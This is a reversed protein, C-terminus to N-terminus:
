RRAGELVGHWADLATKLAAANTTLCTLPDAAFLTGAAPLKVTMPKTQTPVKPQSATAIVAFACVASFAGIQRARV